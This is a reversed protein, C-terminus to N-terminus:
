GCLPAIRLPVAMPTITLKGPSSPPAACLEHLQQAEDETLPITRSGVARPQHDREWAEAADEVVQGADIM